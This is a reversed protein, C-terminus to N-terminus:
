MSFVQKQYVIHVIHFQFAFRQGFMEDEVIDYIYIMNLEVIGKRNFM